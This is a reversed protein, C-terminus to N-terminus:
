PDPSLMARFGLTGAEGVPRQAMGMVMGAAFTKSGGRPGGQDDYVGFLNAHGMLMWEGSMFMVGQLPTSNPQWSTGSAERSMPYPGFQGHMHMAGMEHGGHQMGTMAETGHEGHEMGPMEHQAHMAAHSSGRERPHNMRSSRRKASCQVR